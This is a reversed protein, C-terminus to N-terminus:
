MMSRRRQGGAEALVKAREDARIDVEWWDREAAALETVLAADVRCQVCGHTGGCRYVAGDPRPWAHGHGTNTGPLRPTSPTYGCEDANHGYPGGRTDGCQACRPNDRLGAPARDPNAPACERCTWAGNVVQWGFARMTEVDDNTFKDPDDPMSTASLCTPANACRM